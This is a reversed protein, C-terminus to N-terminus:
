RQLWSEQHTRIEVQSHYNDQEISSINWEVGWCQQIKNM